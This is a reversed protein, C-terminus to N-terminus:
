LLQSLTERAAIEAMQLSQRDKTDESGQDNTPHAVVQALIAYLRKDSVWRHAPTMLGLIVGTITAHIGSADVAIWICGGLLFYLPFSRFGLTAMTRVIIIGIAAVAVLIM